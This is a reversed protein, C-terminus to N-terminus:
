MPYFVPESSLVSLVSLNPIRPVRVRFYRPVRSVGEERLALSFWVSAQPGKWSWGSALTQYLDRGRDGMGPARVGAACMFRMKRATGVSNMGETVLTVQNEGLASYQRRM